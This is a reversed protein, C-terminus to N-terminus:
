KFFTVALFKKVCLVWPGSKMYERPAIDEGLLSTKLFSKHEFKRKLVEIGGNKSSIHVKVIIINGNGVNALNM